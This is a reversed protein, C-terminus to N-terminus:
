EIIYMAHCANQENTLLYDGNNGDLCNGLTSGFARRSQFVGQRAIGDDIKNDMKHYLIPSATGISDDWTQGGATPRSVILSLIAKYLICGSGSLQFESHNCAQNGAAVMGYGENLKLRPYGVGLSWTNSFDDSVLSALSLHQISDATFSLSILQLFCALSRIM